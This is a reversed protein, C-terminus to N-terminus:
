ATSDVMLNSNTWTKTHTNRGRPEQARNRSRAPWRRGYLAEKVYRTDRPACYVVGAAVRRRGYCDPWTQPQLQQAGGGDVFYPARARARQGGNRGRRGDNGSEHGDNWDGKGDNRRLGSDLRRRLAGRAPRTAGQRRESGPGRRSRTPPFRTDVEGQLPLPRRRLRRSLTSRVPRAGTPERKRPFSPAGHPIPSPAVGRRTPAGRGRGRENVDM